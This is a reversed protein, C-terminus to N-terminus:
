APPSVVTSALAALSGITLTEVSSADVLLDLISLVVTEAARCADTEDRHGEGAAITEGNGSVLRWRHEGGADEYFEFRARSV